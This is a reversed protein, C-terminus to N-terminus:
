LMWLDESLMRRRRRGPLENSVDKTCCRWKREETRIRDNVGLSEWHLGVRVM